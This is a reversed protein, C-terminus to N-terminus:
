DTDGPPDSPDYTDVKLSFVAGVILSGVFGGICTGAVSGLADAVYTAANVNGKGKTQVPYWFDKSSMCVSYFTYIDSDETFIDSFMLPVKCLTQYFSGTCNTCDSRYADKLMKICDEPAYIYDFYDILSLEQKEKWATDLSILMEKVSQCEEPSYIHFIGEDRLKESSIESIRSIFVDLDNCSTSKVIEEFYQELVANHITAVLCEYENPTDTDKIDTGIQKNCATFGSAISLLMFIKCVAKM